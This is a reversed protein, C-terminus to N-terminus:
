IYIEHAGETSQNNRTVVKDDNASTGEGQHRTGKVNQDSFQVKKEKPQWQRVIPKNQPCNRNTHGFHHCDYCQLPRFEYEVVQDIVNGDPGRLKISDVLKEGYKLEVLARAYGLREKSVTLKDISVPKGVMSVMKSLM